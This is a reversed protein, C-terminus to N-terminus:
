PTLHTETSNIFSSFFNFYVLAVWPSTKTSSTLITNTQKEEIKWQITRTTNIRRQLNIFMIFNRCFSFCYQFPTVALILLVYFCVCVCVLRISLTLLSMINQYPHRYRCCFPSNIRFQFWNSQCNLGKSEESFITTLWWNIEIELRM